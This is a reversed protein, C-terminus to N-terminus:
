IEVTQVDVKTLICRPDHKFILTIEFPCREYIRSQFNSDRRAADDLKHTAHTILVMEKLEDYKYFTRLVFQNKEETCTAFMGFLADTCIRLM